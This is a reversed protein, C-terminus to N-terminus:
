NYSFLYEKKELSNKLYEPDRWSVIFDKFLVIRSQTNVSFTVPNKRQDFTISKVKEMTQKRVAQDVHPCALYDFYFMFYEASTFMDESALFYEEAEKILRNRLTNYAPRDEIYLM